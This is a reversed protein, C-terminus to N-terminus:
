VSTDSLKFRQKAGSFHFNFSTNATPTIHLFNRDLLWNFYTAGNVCKSIHIDHLQESHLFKEITSLSLLTMFVIGNSIKCYNIDM